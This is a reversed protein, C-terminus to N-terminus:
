VSDRALELFFRKGPNKLKGSWSGEKRVNNQRQDLEQMGSRRRCNSTCFDDRGIFHNNRIEDFIESFLAILEPFSKGSDTIKSLSNYSKVHCSRWRGIVPVKQNSKAAEKVTKADRKYRILM